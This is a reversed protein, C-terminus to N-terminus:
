KVARREVGLLTVLAVPRTLRLDGSSRYGRAVPLHEDGVDGLDDDRSEIGLGGLEDDLGPCGLPAQPADFPGSADGRQPPAREGPSIGCRPASTPPWRPSHRRWMPTTPESARRARRTWAVGRM